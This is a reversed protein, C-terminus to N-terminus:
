CSPRGAQSAGESVEAWYPGIQASGRTHSWRVGGARRRLLLRGVFHRLRRAFGHNIRRELRLLHRANLFESRVM